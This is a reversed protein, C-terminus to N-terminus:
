SVFLVNTGEFFPGLFITMCFFEVFWHCHGIQLLTNGDNIREISWVVCCMDRMGCEATKVVLSMDHFYNADEFVNDGVWRAM